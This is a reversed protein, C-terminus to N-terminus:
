GSWKMSWAGALFSTLIAGDYRVQQSVVIEWEGTFFDDAYTGTYHIEHSPKDPYEIVDGIEDHAWAHAYRKVFSIFNGEIFGDVTAPHRLPIDEIVTGKIVGDTVTINLEFDVAADKMEDPYTAGYVYEGKWIGSFFKDSM